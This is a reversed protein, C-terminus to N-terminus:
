KGCEVANKPTCHFSTSVQNGFNLVGGLLRACTISIDVHALWYNNEPM